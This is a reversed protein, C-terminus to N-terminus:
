KIKKYVYTEFEFSENKDYDYDILYYGDKKPAEKLVVKGYLLDLERNIEVLAEDKEKVKELPTGFNNEVRTVPVNNRYLITEYETSPLKDYDYDIIEYGEPAEITMSENKGFFPNVNRTLSVIVHEGVDYYDKKDEEINNIPTGFNDFDDVEVLTNNQYTINEFDIGSTVDYDYDVIEYGEPAELDKVFGFSGFINIGRDISVVSHEGADYLKDNDEIDIIPLGFCDASNTTVENNNEYYYDSFSLSNELFDYDFDVVRYGSPAELGYLGDKGFPWDVGRDIEILKHEGVNYKINGSTQTKDPAGCGAVTLAVAGTTLLLRLKKTNIKIKM